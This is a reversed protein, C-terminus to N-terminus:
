PVISKFVLTHQYSNGAGFLFIMGENIYNYRIVFDGNPATTFHFKEMNRSLFIFPIVINHQKKRVYFSHKLQKGQLLLAEPEGLANAYSIQMQTANILTFRLINNTMKGLKFLQPLFTSDRSKDLRKNEYKELFTDTLVVTKTQQQAFPKYHHRVAYGNFGCSQLVYLLSIAFMLKIIGM